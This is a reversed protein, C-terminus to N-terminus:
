DCDTARALQREGGPCVTGEWELLGTVDIRVDHELRGADRLAMPADKRATRAPPWM